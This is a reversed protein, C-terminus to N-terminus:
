ATKRWNRVKTDFLLHDGKWSVTLNRCHCRNKCTSILRPWHWKDESRLYARVHIFNLFASLSIFSTLTHLAPILIEILLDGPFPFRSCISKSNFTNALRTVSPMPFASTSKAKTMVPLTQQWVEEDRHRTAPNLLPPHWRDYPLILKPVPSAFHAYRPAHSWTPHTWPHQPLPNIGNCSQESHDRYPPPSWPLDGTVPFISIDLDDELLSSRLFSWVPWSWRQRWSPWLAFRRPSWKWAHSSCSTVTSHLFRIEVSQWLIKVGLSLERLSSCLGVMRRLFQTNKRHGQAFRSGRTLCSGFRPRGPRM